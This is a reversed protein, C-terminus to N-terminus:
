KIDPFAYIVGDSNRWKMWGTKAIKDIDVVSVLAWNGQVKVLKIKQIHNLKSLNQSLDDSKAHLIKTEDPADKFLRLGYKRGYMNYFNMWSLFQFTDNSKVWGKLGRKKNYIVEVWGDEDFDTVYLFGLHKENILFAFVEDPM